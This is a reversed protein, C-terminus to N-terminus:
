KNEKNKLELSVSTYKSIIQQTLQIGRSFNVFDPDSSISSRKSLMEIFRFIEDLESLTEEYFSEYNVILEGAKNLKELLDQHFEDHQEIIKKSNEKIEKTESLLFGIKEYIREIEVRSSEEYNELTNLKISIDQIKDKTEKNIFM